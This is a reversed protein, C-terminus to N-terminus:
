RRPEALRSDLHAFSVEYDVVEEIQANVTATVSERFRMRARRHEDAVERSEWFTLTLTVGDEANSLMILGKFGDIGQLWRLMEEGTMRAVDITQEVPGRTRTVTVHVGAKKYGDPGGASL